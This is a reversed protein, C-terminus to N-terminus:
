KYINASSKRKLEHKPRTTVAVAEQFQNVPEIVVLLTTTTKKIENKRKHPLLCAMISEYM